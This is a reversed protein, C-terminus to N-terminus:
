EEVWSKLTVTKAASGRWNWALGVEDVASSHDSTRGVTYFTHFNVGDTSVSYILNVNDDEIRHWMYPLGGYMSTTAKATASTDSSSTYRSTRIDVGMANRIIIFVETAARRAIMGGFSFTSATWDMGNVVFGTTIIWPAAPPAKFFMSWENPTTEGVTMTIGGDADDSVSGAGINEQTFDSLTLVNGDIDQLRAPNRYSGGATADDFYATLGQETIITNVAAADSHSAGATGDVGRTITIVNGSRATGLMVESDIQIRFDGETPFITSDSVTLSTAVDTIAGDLVTGLGTNVIQEHRAM